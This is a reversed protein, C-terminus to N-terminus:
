EHEWADQVAMVDTRERGAERAPHRPPDERVRQPVRLAVRRWDPSSALKLFGALDALREIESDM